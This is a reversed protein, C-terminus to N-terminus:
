GRVPHKHMVQKFSLAQKIHDTSVAEEGAADALTRAVKLLRHYSRASLQLTEMAQYIFKQTPQSLRALHECDKGNLHANLCGQRDYQHQRLSLVKERVVASNNTNESYTYMMDKPHMASVTIHMDIRDLIPGSLKSAYRHIKDPTCICHQQTSGFYGCPCPNMAAILQFKAPFELHMAARAISICGSELPERLNELVHRNFEPAEDLFLVGHHALSIEGPKIPHGGGVIAIPSASHHPARFPPLRWTHFDIRQNKLSQLTACELAQTESLPPLLTMFRKAMMTKGSGPPGSLLVNHGGVAAIEMAYKAHIQGKIDSWDVTYDPASGTYEPISTLPTNQCLYQCVERLCQASYISKYGTLAAEIANHQPIILTTKDIKAQMAVPIITPLGRIEGNLSLEGLWEHTEFARSPIQQSAALIALAIPLDFGSGSKPVNAPSLNVTIRQYPFEFQSNMIASRVREKSEKVAAEPLGVISFHPLGNSIHVEVSISQAYIGIISRTKTVAIDM